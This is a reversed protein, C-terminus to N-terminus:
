RVLGEEFSQARSLVVLSPGSAAKVLEGWGVGGKGLSRGEWCM